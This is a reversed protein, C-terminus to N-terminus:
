RCTLSVKALAAAPTADSPAADSAAGQARKAETDEQQRPEM